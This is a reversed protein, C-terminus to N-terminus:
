KEKVAVQGEVQLEKVTAQGYRVVEKEKRQSM